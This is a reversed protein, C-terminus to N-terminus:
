RDSKLRPSQTTRMANFDTSQSTRLMRTTAARDLKLSVTQLTSTTISGPQM